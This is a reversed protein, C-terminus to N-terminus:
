VISWTAGGDISVLNFLTVGNAVNSVQPQSPAVWSVNTSWSVLGTGATNQVVYLEIRIRTNVIENGLGLTLTCVSGTNLTVTQIHGQTPDITIGTGANGAQYIPVQNVTGAIAGVSAILDRVDGPIISGVSQGDAFETNLQAITKVSGSM